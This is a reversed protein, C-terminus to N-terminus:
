PAETGAAPGATPEVGTSVPLGTATAAATGVASGSVPGADLLPDWSQLASALRSMLDLDAEAYGPQVQTAYIMVQRVIEVPPTDGLLALRRAAQAPDGEAAYAEAVMLVYDAKYDERLSNPTTDVYEVPNIVWGYALGVAIGIVIAILFLLWRSM